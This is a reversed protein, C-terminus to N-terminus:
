LECFTSQEVCASFNCIEVFLLSLLSFSSLILPLPVCMRNRHNLAHSERTGRQQNVLFEMVSQILFLDSYISSISAFNLIFFIFIIVIDITLALLTCKKM